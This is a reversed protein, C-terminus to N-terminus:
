KDKREDMLSEAVAIADEQASTMIETYIRDFEDPHLEETVDNIEADFIGYILPKYGDMEFTAVVPILKDNVWAKTEYEGNM